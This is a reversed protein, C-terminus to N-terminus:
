SYIHQMGPVFPHVQDVSSRNQHNPCLTFTTYGDRLRVYASTWVKCILCEYQAGAYSGIYYSSPDHEWDYYHREAEEQTTHGDSHDFCPVSRWVRGDNMVTWDWRGDPQRQRAQAYNM